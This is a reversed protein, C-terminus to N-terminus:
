PDWTGWQRMDSGEDKVVFGNLDDIILNTNDLCEALIQDSAEIQVAIYPDLIDNRTVYQM